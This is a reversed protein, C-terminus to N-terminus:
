GGKGQSQDLNLSHVFCCIFFSCSKPSFYHNYHYYYNFCCGLSLFLSHLLICKSHNTVSCWASFGSRPIIGDSHFRVFLFRGSSYLDFSGLSGCAKTILSSSMTQGDYIELYDWPCHNGEYELNFHYIHLQIYFGPPAEILWTCVVNNPYCDPYGPSHFHTYFPAYIHSGCSGLLILISNFVSHLYNFRSTKRSDTVLIVLILVEVYLKFRLSSECEHHTVTYQYGESTM